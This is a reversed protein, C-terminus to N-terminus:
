PAWNVEIDDVFTSGGSVRIMIRGFGVPAFSIPEDGLLSGNVSVQTRAQDLDVTVGIVAQGSIPVAPRSCCWTVSSPSIELAAFAGTSLVLPSTVPVMDAVWLNSTGASPFVRITTDFRGTQIPVGGAPELSPLFYTDAFGNTGDIRLCNGAGDPCSKVLIQNDDYTALGTMGDGAPHRDLTCKPEDGETDGEFGAKLLPDGPEWPRRAASITGQNQLNSNTFRQFSVDVEGPEIESGSFVSTGSPTEFTGGFTTPDLFDGQGFVGLPFANGLISTGVGSGSITFTEGNPSVTQSIELPSTAVDRVPLTSGFGASCGAAYWQGAYRGPTEVWLESTSHTATHPRSPIKVFVRYIGDEEFLSTIETEDASRWAGSGPACGESGYELRITPSLPEVEGPRAVRVLLDGNFCSPGGSQDGSLLVRGGHYNVWSGIERSQVVSPTPSIGPDLLRWPGHLDLIRSVDILGNGFELDCEPPAPTLRCDAKARTSYFHTTCEPPTPTADCDPAIWWDDVWESSPRRTFLDKIRLEVEAATLEPFEALILAALGAVQPAAFSTGAKPVPQDNLYVWLPVGPAVFDVEDGFNSFCARKITGREGDNTCGDMDTSADLPLMTAGVTIVPSTGDELVASALGAGPAHDVDDNLNGAAFVIVPLEGLLEKQSTLFSSYFASGGHLDISLNVVDSMGLASSLNWDVEWPVFHDCDLLSPISVSKISAQPAVGVGKVGESFSPHMDVPDYHSAALSAVETGHTCEQPLQANPNGPPVLTVDLAWSVRHDVVDIQVGQGLRPFLRQWGWPVHTQRLHWQEEPTPPIALHSLGGFEYLAVFHVGSDAALLAATNKTEAHTAGPLFARHFGLAPIEQQYELGYHSALAEIEQATLAPDYGVRFVGSVFGLDVDTQSIPPLALDRNVTFPFSVLAGIVQITGGSSDVDPVAFELYNGTSLTPLVHESGITVSNESPNQCFGSGYVAIREGPAAESPSVLTVTLPGQPVLREATVTRFDRVQGDGDEDVSVSIFIRGESVLGIAATAGTATVTFLSSINIAVPTSDIGEVLLASITAVEPNVSRSFLVEVPLSDSCTISDPAPSVISITFPEPTCQPAAITTLLLV